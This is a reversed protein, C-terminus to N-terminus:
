YLFEREEQDPFVTKPDQENPEDNPDFVVDQLFPHPKESNVQDAPAELFKGVPPVIEEQNEQLSNDEGEQTEEPTSSVCTLPGWILAVLTLFLLIKGVSGFM